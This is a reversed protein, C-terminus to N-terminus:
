KGDACELAFGFSEGKRRKLIVTRENSKDSMREIFVFIITKLLVKIEKGLISSKAQLM